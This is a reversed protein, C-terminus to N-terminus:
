ITKLDSLYKFILKLLKNADIPKSIYDTCGAELTMERDGALSYATQAIIPIEKNFERVRKTTELGSLLPMKIDMLILSIDNNEMIINVADAGNTAHLVKFGAPILINKLYLFSAFDDEAILIKKTLISNDRSYADDDLTESLKDAPIFPISFSFCSGKGPESEMWIKGKLQNIYARVISLGLGSGEHPRTSSLDAQVFRDYILDHREPPIGIGSDEVYFVLGSDELYCGFKVFGESTFKISNKLLNTIISDLKIRDTLFFSIDEPLKNSIIYEIGKQDTQQKFFGHYYAMLESMSVVSMKITAEGAEIKSIEIIDNITDLLRQGSQTLINIYAQKNEESLDPEKLLTLFGFIGNMPTRIEHSMNALFSSKLRDSEEAKEKALILKQEKRIREKVNVLTQAYISLVQQEYDNYIHKKSVSDFGVFGICVSEQMLPLTLLSIINQREMLERLDNGPLDNVDNVQFVEGKRHMEVWESFEDLPVAKMTEIQPDIGGRCWEHTNTATNMDFEYDIIYARDAGVFEGIRSLSKDIAPEIEKIPVNIFGSSLEVLLKQLDSMYRLGFEATKQLTVDRGYFSAGVVESDVIIPSMSVEIYIASSDTEVKDEFVFYEKNFARDYREKWLQRLDEPLSEVLNTGRSLLVGFSHKFANAFVDNVYLIEYDRNISWISDLSNELIAKLNASSEKIALETKKSQTIDEIIGDFYDPKGEKDLVLKSNDRVWIIEGTRQVLQIESQNIGKAKLSAEIQSNRIKPDAYLQNVNLKLIEDISNYDLMKALFENTYVFRGDFTTRYVGVPLQDTLSRYKDESEKLAEMAQYRDTIDRAMAFVVARGFYMGRNLVVDKPFEEGNKRRGWWEFRQSEGNFAWKIFDMTANLDNRGKASLIGPTNGIFEERDYGYMQLAASNVDIFFGEEDLIYIADTAHDFISRYSMESESLAEAMDELRKNEQRLNDASEVHKQLKKLCTIDNFLTIMRREDLMQVQVMLWRQLYQSFYEIVISDNPKADQCFSFIKDILPKDNQMFVEELNKGVIESSSLAVLEEFAKNVEIIVSDSPHSHSEKMLEHCVYAFSALRIVSQHITEGM